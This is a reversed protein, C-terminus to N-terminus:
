MSYGYPMGTAMGGPMGASPMGGAPMGTPMAGFGPAAGYGPQPSPVGPMGMSAPGATLMLQPEGSVPM